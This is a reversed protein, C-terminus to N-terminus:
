SSDAIETSRVFNQRGNETRLLGNKRSPLEKNLESKYKNKCSKQPHSVYKPREGINGLWM